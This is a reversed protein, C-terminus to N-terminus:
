RDQNPELKQLIIWGGVFMAIPMLMGLVMLNTQILLNYLAHLAIACVLLGFTIPVAKLEKKSIILLGIGISATTMGHMLATTLTRMVLIFIDLIERSSIAFYYMSEQISFGIGSAM